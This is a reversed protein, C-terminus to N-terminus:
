RCLPMLATMETLCPSPEQQTGIAFPKVLGDGISGTLCSEHNGVIQVPAIFRYGRRPLTEVYRPSEANDGLAARIKNIAINLGQEFDVFTGDDWIQRRIDERTMLEGPHSALLALIRFPQPPLSILLGSKRLEGTNSDIEFTGFRLLPM